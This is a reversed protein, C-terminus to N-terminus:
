NRPARPMKLVLERIAYLLVIIVTALILPIALLIVLATEIGINPIEMATNISGLMAVVVVAFIGVFVGFTEIVRVFYTRIVQDHDAISSRMNTMDGEMARQSRELDQRMAEMDAKIRDYTEVLRTEIEKASIEPTIVGREELSQLYEIGTASIKFRYTETEGFPARVVSEEILGKDRLERLDRSIQGGPQDKMLKQVAAVLVIEDVKIPYFERLSRLIQKQVETGQYKDM